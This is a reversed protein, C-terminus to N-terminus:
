VFMNPPSVYKLPRKPLHQEDKSKFDTQGVREHVVGGFPFSGSLSVMWKKPNHMPSCRGPRGSCRRGDRVNKLSHEDWFTAESWKEFVGVTERVIVPKENSRVSPDSHM